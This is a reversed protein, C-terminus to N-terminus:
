HPAAATAHQCVFYLAAELYALGTRLQGTRQGPRIAEVGAAFRM